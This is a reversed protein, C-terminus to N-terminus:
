AFQSLPRGVTPNLRGSGFAFPRSSATNPRATAQKRQARGQAAQAVSVRRAVGLGARVPARRVFVGM